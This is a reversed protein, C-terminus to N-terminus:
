EMLISIKYENINDWVKWQAFKIILIDEFKVSVLLDDDLFVQKIFLIVEFSDM